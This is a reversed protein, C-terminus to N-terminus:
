PVTGYSFNRINGRYEYNPWYPSKFYPGGPDRFSLGAPDPLLASGINGPGWDVDPNYRPDYHGAWQGRVAMEAAITERPTNDMRALWYRAEEDSPERGLQNVYLRNIYALPKFEERAPSNRDGMNLGGGPSRYTRMYRTSDDNTAATSAPQYSNELRAYGVPAGTRSYYQAQSVGAFALLGSLAIAMTRTM